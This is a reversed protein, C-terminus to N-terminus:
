CTIDEESYYKNIKKFSIGVSSVDYPYVKSRLESLNNPNQRKLYLNFLKNIYLHNSTFPYTEIDTNEDCRFHYGDINADGKM